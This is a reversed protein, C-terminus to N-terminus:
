YYEMTYVFWMKQIWEETPYRPHFIIDVDNELKQSNCIFSSHVCPSMYQPITSFRKPIHGPATYSPRWTSSNEIKEPVVLSIYLTTKVLKCDWWCHVFIGRERWEQWCRSDGSNKIKAMRVPTLCFRMTKIQMKRIVLSTSCKKLHKEAM